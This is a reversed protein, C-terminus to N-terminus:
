LTDSTDVKSPAASYAPPNAPAAAALVVDGAISDYRPLATIGALDASALTGPLVVVRSAFSIRAPRVCARIDDDQHRECARVTIALKHSVSFVPSASSAQVPQASDAAPLPLSLSAVSPLEDFAEGLAGITRPDLACLEDAQELLVGYGGVGDHSTRPSDPPHQQKDTPAHWPCLSSRAVRRKTVKPAAASGPVAHTTYEYLAVDFEALALRAAPDVSGRTVPADVRTAYMCLKLESGLLLVRSSPSYVSVKWRGGGVVAEFLLPTSVLASVSPFGLLALGHPVGDALRPAQFVGIAVPASSVAAGFLWSPRCMTAQVQYAVRGLSSAVSPPLGAPLPL